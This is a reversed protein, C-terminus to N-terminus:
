PRPRPIYRFLDYVRQSQTDPGEATGQIRICALRSAEKCAEDLLIGFNSNDDQRSGPGGFHVFCHNLIGFYRTYSTYPTRSTSPFLLIPERRANTRSNGSAELGLVCGFVASARSTSPIGTCLGHYRKM